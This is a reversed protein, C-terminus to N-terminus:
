PLNQKARQNDKGGSVRPTYGSSTEPRLAGRSQMARPSGCPAAPRSAVSMSVDASLLVGIFAGGAPADGEGGSARTQRPIEVGARPIHRGVARIRGRWVGGPGGGGMNNLVGHVFGCVTVLNDHGVPHVPRRRATSAGHGVAHGDGLRQGQPADRGPTVIM